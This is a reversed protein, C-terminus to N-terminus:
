FRGNVGFVIDRFSLDFGPSSIFGGKLYLEIQDNTQYNLFGFLTRAPDHKAFGTGRDKILPYTGFIGFKLKKTLNVYEAVASIVQVNQPSYYFAAFQRTSDYTHSLGVRFVPM